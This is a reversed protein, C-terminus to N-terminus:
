YDHSLVPEDTTFITNFVLSIDNIFFPKTTNSIIELIM